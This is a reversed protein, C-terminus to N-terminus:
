LLVEKGVNRKQIAIAGDGRIICDLNLICCKPHADFLGTKLKSDGTEGELM